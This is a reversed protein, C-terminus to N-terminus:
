QRGGYSPMSGAICKGGGKMRRYFKSALLSPIERKWISVKFALQGDVFWVFEPALEPRRVKLKVWELSDCDQNSDEIVGGGCLNGIMEFTKKGWFHVLLGFVWIWGGEGVDM